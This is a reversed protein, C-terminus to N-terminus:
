PCSELRDSSSLLHFMPCKKSYFSKGTFLLDDLDINLVEKGRVVLGFQCIFINAAQCSVIDWDDEKTPVHGAMYELSRPHIMNFYIDQMEECTPAWARVTKHTGAEAQKDKVLRILERLQPASGPNGQFAGDGLAVYEGSVHRCENEVCERCALGKFLNFAGSAISNGTSSAKWDEFGKSQDVVRGCRAMVLCKLLRVPDQSAPRKDSPHFPLAPDDLPAKAERMLDLFLRQNTSYRQESSERVPKRLRETALTAAAAIIDASPAFVRAGKAKKKPPM